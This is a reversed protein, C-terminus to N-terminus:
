PRAQVADFTRSMSPLTGLVGHSETFSTVQATPYKTSRVACRGREELERRDSPGARQRLRRQQAKSQHRLHAAIIGPVASEVPRAAAPGLPGVPALRTRVHAPLTTMGKGREGFLTQSQSEEAIRDSCPTFSHACPFPISKSTLLYDSINLM